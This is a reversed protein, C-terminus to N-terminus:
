EADDDGIIRLPQDSHAIIIKDEYVCWSADDPLEAIFKMGKRTVLDSPM